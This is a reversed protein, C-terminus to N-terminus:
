LLSEVRVHMFGSVPGEMKNTRDDMAEDNLIDGIKLAPPLYVLINHRQGEMFTRLGEFSSKTGASTRVNNVAEDAINEM